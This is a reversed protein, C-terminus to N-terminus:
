PRQGRLQVAAQLLATKGAGAYCEIVSLRTGSVLAAAAEAQAANRQPAVHHVAATDVTPAPASARTALRATLEDDTDIIGQTTWHAVTDDPTVRPDAMSRCHDQVLSVLHELRQGTEEPNGVVDLATIRKLAEARIDATSWSSKGATLGALTTEALEPMPPWGAVRLPAPTQPSQYGAEALQVRWHQELTEPDQVAKAPRPILQEDIFELEATGNGAIYDWSSYLAPGPT